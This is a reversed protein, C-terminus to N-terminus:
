KLDSIAVSAGQHGSIAVILASLGFSKRFGLELSNVCLAHQIALDQFLKSNSVSMSGLLVELAKIDNKSKALDRLDNLADCQAKM